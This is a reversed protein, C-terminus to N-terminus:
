QLNENQRHYQIEIGSSVIPYQTVNFICFIVRTNMYIYTM